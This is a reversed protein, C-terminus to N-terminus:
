LHHPRGVKVETGHREHHMRGNAPSADHEEEEAIPLPYNHLQPLSAGPQRRLIRDILEERRNKGGAKSNRPQEAQGRYLEMQMNETSPEEM